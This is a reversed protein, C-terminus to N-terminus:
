KYCKKCPTFGQDIAEAITVYTPKKMGSCKKNRHYRQGTRPIWVMEGWQSALDPDFAPAELAFLAEATTADAIGTAELNSTLQFSLLATETKPGFSGDAADELYGLDILRGQVQKVMEGKAGRELSEWKTFDIDGMSEAAGWTSLALLLILLLALFRQSKM